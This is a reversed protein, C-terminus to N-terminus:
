KVYTIHLQNLVPTESLAVSTYIKRSSCKHLSLVFYLDDQFPVYPVSPVFPVAAVFVQQLASRSRSKSSQLQPLFNVGITLTMQEKYDLEMSCLGQSVLLQESLRGYM